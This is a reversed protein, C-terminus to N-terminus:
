QLPETAANYCETIQEQFSEAVNDADETTQQWEASFVRHNAPMTDKVPQGFLCSYQNNDLNVLPNPFM